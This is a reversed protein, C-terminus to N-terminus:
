RYYDTNLHDDDVNYNFNGFDVEKWALTDLVVVQQEPLEYANTHHFSFFAPATFVLAAASGTCIFLLGTL